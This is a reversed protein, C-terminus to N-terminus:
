LTNENDVMKEDKSKHNQLLFFKRKIIWKAIPMFMLKFLLFALAFIGIVTTTFLINHYLIEGMRVIPQQQNNVYFSTESFTIIVTHQTSLYRLFAGSQSYVLYDNLSGNTSTPIWIGSYNTLGSYDLSETRNITKTLTFAIETTQGITQDSTSFVECYKMEKVM